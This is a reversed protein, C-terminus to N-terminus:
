SLELVKEETILEGYLYNKIEKVIAYKKLVDILQKKCIDGDFGCIGPCDNLRTQIWLGDGIYQFHIIIEPRHLMNYDEFFPFFGDGHDTEFKNHYAKIEVTLPNIYICMNDPEKEADYNYYSM